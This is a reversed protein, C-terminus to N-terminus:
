NYEKYTIFGCYDVDIAAAGTIALQLRDGLGFRQKSKPVKIWQRLINTASAAPTNVLGQSFFLVNKKNESTHMSTMQAFTFSVGTGPLKYLAFQFSGLNSTEGAKVWLEVYVAKISSGNEVETALNKVSVDVADALIETAVAGGAVSSVTIQVYHKQSHVMPRVM